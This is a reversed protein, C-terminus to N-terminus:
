ILETRISFLAWVDVIGRIVAADFIRLKLNVDQLSDATDLDEQADPVFGDLTSPLLLGAKLMKDGPTPTLREVVVCQSPCGSTSFLQLM